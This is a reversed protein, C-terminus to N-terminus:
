RLATRAQTGLDEKFTIQVTEIHERSWLPEFVSNAWRLTPINLLVQPAHHTTRPVHHTTRLPHRPRWLRAPPSQTPLTQPTPLTPPTPPTPPTPRPM